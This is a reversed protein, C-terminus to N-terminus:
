MYNVIGTGIMLISGIIIWIGFLKGMFIMWKDYPIDTAGLIGMLATSTPLIYNCFGDGFNYALIATQRSIGVTDALPAFIPMVAAAQGSGSTIFMNFIINVIFMIPAKLVQPFANIGLTMSHITTDMINGQDLVGSVTKALGIILAAGIMNRAGEVVYKAIESPTFGAILGSIISLWMFIAATQDLKWDLKIGGYVIVGLASFLSIIVLYKRLNMSKNFQENSKVEYSRSKDIEYMPSLEPKNKIKMAYKILYINTVIYFIIFSFLRYGIGSYPTLGAIEQAVLTTNVNLTGTSFGVAGGLLIIAAGVISDFGMAIAIMVMIPAFGIFTNVGQTTCILGFILTLIPIFIYEKNKTKRSVMGILSQLAGSKTIVNFASGSFLIVCILVASKKFGEISITFIDLPNVPTKDVYKFTSPDIVKIGEANEVRTYEASPVIWTLVVAILIIIMLIVLTHPLQKKKGKM